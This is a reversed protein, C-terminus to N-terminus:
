NSYALSRREQRRYGGHRSVWVSKSRVARTRAPGHGIQDPVSGKLCQVAARVAVITVTTERLQALHWPRRAAATTYLFLVEKHNRNATIM